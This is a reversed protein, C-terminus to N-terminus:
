AVALWAILLGLLLVLPLATNWRLLLSELREAPDWADNRKAAPRTRRPRISAWRRSAHTAGHRALALGRTAVTLMISAAPLPLRVIPWHTNLAAIMLGVVVLALSVAALGTPASSLQYAGALGSTVLLLTTMWNSGVPQSTDPARTESSEARGATCISNGALLATLAMGLLLTIATRTELHALLGLPAMGLLLAGLWGAASRLSVRNYRTTATDGSGVLLLAALATLSQILVTASAPALTEWVDPYQLSTALVILWTTGTVVTAYGASVARRAPSLASLGAWLLTLGVLWQLIDSVPIATLQGMPLLRLAGLLGGGFVLTLIAPRLAAHATTLLAPLWYHVGLIGLKIGFGFILLGLVVPKGDIHIFAQRMLKLDVTGAAQGLMLLVEFILLDSVILAILLLQSAQRTRRDPPLALAGYLAYGALTSAAFFLVADAALVLGISGTMALLLMLTMPYSDQISRQARLWEGTALWLLAIPLLFARGTADMVLSTGLLMASLHLSGDPAAVLALSPLAAWRGLSRGAPRLRPLSLLLAALLPWAIALWLLNQAIKSSM